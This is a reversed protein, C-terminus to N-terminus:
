RPEGSPQIDKAPLLLGKGREQLVEKSARESRGVSPVRSSCRM